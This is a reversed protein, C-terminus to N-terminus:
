FGGGDESLLIVKLYEGTLGGSGNQSDAILLLCRRGDPLVPGLCMGEFNALNLAGTRFSCLPSKRLIGASDRGPDVAYIRIETFANRLKDWFGGGPVFVERELVLLRGDDLAALAPVGHVYAATGGASRLPEDMQYFFRGAPEGDADFRQLRLIRPLFTDRRLPAETTTWFMGTAAQFTLAEFGRNGSIDKLDEPVRLATGTGDGALDYGRIEQHKESTIFLTGSSPVFAIGEPDRSKGAGDDKWGARRVSVSGVNGSGDVPITFYLLGSGPLRDSVVAYRDGGLWTIGSYEGPDIDMATQPLPGARLSSTPADPPLLTGEWRYATGSRLDLAPLRVSWLRGDPAEAVAAAAPFGGPDSAMWLVLRGPETVPITRVEGSVPALLLRGAGLPLGDVQMRIFASAHRVVLLTDGKGTVTTDTLFRDRAFLSDAAADGTVPTGDEFRVPEFVERPPQAQCGLATLAAAIVTLMSKRMRYAFEM